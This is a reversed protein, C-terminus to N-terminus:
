VHARGIQALCVDEGVDLVLAVPLVDHARALQVLSKRAHPQVNTADVVTLLGADLRKGVIYALVDFAAATAEQSTEDNSVLGRCHDSSVTEFPGFHTAAFTSKGSGSAGVLVVLSLDPVSIETM